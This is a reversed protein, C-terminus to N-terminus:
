PSPLNESLPPRLKAILRDIRGAVARWDDLWDRPFRLVVIPRM